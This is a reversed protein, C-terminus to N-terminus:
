GCLYLFITCMCWTQGYIAFFNVARENRLMVWSLTKKIQQWLHNLDPIVDGTDRRHGVKRSAARGPSLSTIKRSRRRGTARLRRRLNTAPLTSGALCLRTPYSSKQRSSTISLQSTTNLFLILFMAHVFICKDIYSNAWKVTVLFNCHICTLIISGYNWLIILSLVICTM